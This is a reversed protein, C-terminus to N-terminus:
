PVPAVSPSPTEPAVPEPTQRVSWAVLAIIAAAVVVLVLIGM